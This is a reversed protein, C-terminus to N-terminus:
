YKKKIFMIWIMSYSEFRNLLSAWELEKLIYHIIMNLVDNIKPCNKIVVQENTLISGALLPLVSNKASEVKISGSLRNGGNIVCKEM